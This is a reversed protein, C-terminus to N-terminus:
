ARLMVVTSGAYEHTERVGTRGAPSLSTLSGERELEAASLRELLIEDREVSRGGGVGIRERCRELVLGEPEARVATPQSSYVVGDLEVVDPRPAPLGDDADYLELAETIAMALLGGPLLHRAACALFRARGAAGGLLQVTQMPVICLSFREGLDFARADAVVCRIDLGKARRSLEDTLAPESDLATVRHGARALDVAVRGTGAGVDLVPGGQEAALARWLPLDEIYPGCELDHWIVSV